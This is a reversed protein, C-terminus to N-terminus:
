ADAGAGGDNQEGGQGTEHKEKEAKEQEVLEMWREACLPRGYKKTTLAIIQQATMKETGTIIKGTDACRVAGDVRPLHRRIRLADVTEGFAKVQEVGIQVQRGIWDEIIPTGFIKEMTKANTANVIMPKIGKEAFRMVMCEERKGDPGNVPELRISAITYVVDKYKGTNEDLLAYAGLYDPNYLKKWHTKTTAM